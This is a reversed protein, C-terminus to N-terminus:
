KACRAMVEKVFDTTKFEKLTVGLLKAAEPKSVWIDKQQNEGAISVYRGDFDMANFEIFQVGSTRIANEFFPRLKDHYFTPPIYFPVFGSDLLAVFKGSMFDVTVLKQNISEAILNFYNFYERADMSNGRSVINMRQDLKLDGEMELIEKGFRNDFTGDRIVRVCNETILYRGGPILGHLMKSM